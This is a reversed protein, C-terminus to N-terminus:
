GFFGNGYYPYAGFANSNSYYSGGGSYGLGGGNGDLISGSGTWDSQPMPMATVSLTLQIAVLISLLLTVLSFAMERSSYHNSNSNLSGRIYRHEHSSIPTAVIRFCVRLKSSNLFETKRDAGQSTVNRATIRHHRTPFFNIM